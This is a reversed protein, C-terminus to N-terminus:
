EPFRARLAASDRDTCPLRGRKSALAAGRQTAVQRSSRQALSVRPDFRVSSVDYSEAVTRVSRCARIRDGVTFPFTNHSALRSCREGSRILLRYGVAM